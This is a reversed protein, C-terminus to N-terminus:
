LEPQATEAEKQAAEEAERKRKQEERRKMAEERRKRRAEEEVRNEELRRATAAEIEEDSKRVFGKEVMMEHMEEKTKLDSLTVKEREEGNESITLVAKKGHIYTVEVGEYWEAEGDKM